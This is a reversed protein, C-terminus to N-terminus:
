PPFKNKSPHMSLPRGDVCKKAEAQEKWENEETKVKVNTVIRGYICVTLSTNRSKM